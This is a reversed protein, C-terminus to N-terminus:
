YQVIEISEIVVDNLPKDSENTETKAIADIVDLGEFVQGFITYGFDLEPTGGLTNYKEQAEASYNTRFIKGTSSNYLIENEGYQEIVQNVYDFYGETVAPKQVIYFQSGNTDAGSNAMALAGKFHYMDGTFEDEFKDGWISTGGTGNGEPDGGQIMFNDIVRHFILGDYYGEKAHGVFNEVAKPAQEPCLKIKMEGMNTKIVAIEEGKEPEELQPFETGETFLKEKLAAEEASPQSSSSEEQAASSSAGSEASEKESSSCGGLLMIGAVAAILLKKM